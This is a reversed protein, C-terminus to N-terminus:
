GPVPTVRVLVGFKPHDFYNLENSKIRRQENIVFVPPGEATANTTTPSATPSGLAGTSTTQPQFTLNMEVHLFRSLYFRFTGDLQNDGTNLLIPPGSSKAEAAQAWRKHLLVKYRGDNRMAAMANAFESSPAATEVTIAKPETERSARTWQESGELEPLQTEFVLVEVEYNTSSSSPAGYVSVSLLWGLLLIILRPM